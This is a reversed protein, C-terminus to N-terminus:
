GFIEKLAATIPAPGIAEVVDFRKLLMRGGFNDSQGFDRGFASAFGGIFEVHGFKDGVVFLQQCALVDVDNGNRQRVVQVRRDTDFGQLRAFVDHDVLRDGGACRVRRLQDFFRLLAPQEQHHALVLAHRRLHLGGFLEDLASYRM